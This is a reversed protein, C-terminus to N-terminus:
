LEGLSSFLYYPSLRMFPYYGDMGTNYIHVIYLSKNYLLTAPVYFSSKPPDGLCSILLPCHPTHM